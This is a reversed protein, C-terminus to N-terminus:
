RLTMAQYGPVEGLVARAYRQTQHRIARRYDMRLGNGPHTLNANLKGELGQLFKQKVAASMRCGGADSEFEEPRVSRSLTLRLVVSDVVLPRFEEMLDSALAPQGHHATHLVGLYPYLGHTSVIGLVNAILVGYGYSLMANVPDTPPRRVRGAFRWEDGLLASLGAYYARAAAGEHGRVAAVDRAHPLEELQNGVWDIATDVEPVSRQRQYRRLVLRANRLKGDVIARATVLRFEADTDREFQRRHLDVHTSMSRHLLGYHTGDWALFHVGIGEEAAYELVGTSVAQRGHLIIQNLAHGPLSEVEEGNRRIRLRGGEKTLYLGPSLLHLTRFLPDFEM